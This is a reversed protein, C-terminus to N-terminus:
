NFNCESNESQWIVHDHELLSPDFSEDGIDGIHEGSCNYVPVVTDCYPCCNGYIFVTKDKYEAQSIYLYESMTSAKMVEIKSALWELDRTPDKVSCTTHLDSDDHCSCALVCLLFLQARPKM